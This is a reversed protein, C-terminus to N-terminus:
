LKRNYAVVYGPLYPSNWLVAAEMKLTSSREVKLVPASPKDAIDTGVLIRDWLSLWSIGRFCWYQDVLTCPTVDWIMIRVNVAMVVQFKKHRMSMVNWSDYLFGSFVTMVKDVLSWRGSGTQENITNVYGMWGVAWSCLTTRVSTVFPLQLM